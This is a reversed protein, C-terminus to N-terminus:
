DVGREKQEPTGASDRKRDGRAARAADVICTVEEDEPEKRLVTTFAYGQERLGAIFGDLDHCWETAVERDRQRQYATIEKREQETAVVRVLRTALEGGRGLRLLVKHDPWRTDLFAPQNRSLLAAADVAVEYGLLALKERMEDLLFAEECLATMHGSAARVFGTYQERSIFPQGQLLAGQKRLEESGELPALAAMIRELDDRYVRSVATDEKLRGYRVRVMDRLMELRQLLREERAGAVLPALEAQVAADYEGILLHCREIDALLAERPGDAPVVVYREERDERGGEGALERARRARDGRALLQELQVLQAAPGDEEAVAALGAELPLRERENLGAMLATLAARRQRVLLGEEMGALSAGNIKKRLEFTTATLVTLLQAVRGCEGGELAALLESRAAAVGALDDAFEGQMGAPLAALEKRLLYEIGNLEARAADFAAQKEECASQYRFYLYFAAGAGLGIAAAFPSAAVINQYIVCSSM